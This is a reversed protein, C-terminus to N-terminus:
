EDFDLALDLAPPSHTLSGVSIWDVGTEAIGRVTQLNVGGSAEVVARGAVLEVAERMDHLGMNDLMVIDAGARVAAAVQARSECEVEIAVGPAFARAREVATAVDGGVAALHNDKILIAQALHERHSLGGGCRVAYKDLRRWGPITKRTDLIRARTGRVAAVFQATMTAIGSLHQMFNLAVREAELQARAKGNLFLVVTGRQVVDGDRVDQRVTVAPDRQRFAEIALLTGCVVGGRRAVLASRSHRDSVITSLTTLDEDARDEELAARVLQASAEHDLPYDLGSGAHFGRAALREIRPERGGGGDPAPAAITDSM